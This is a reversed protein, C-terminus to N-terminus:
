AQAPQATLVLVTIDDDQGFAVTCSGPFLRLAICTAFAHSLRGNWYVWHSHDLAPDSWAPNDGPHFQWPGELAIATKGIGTILLPEARRGSPAALCAFLCLRFRTRCCRPFMGAPIARLPLSVSFCMKGENVGCLSKRLIQNIELSHLYRRQFRAAWKLHLAYAIGSASQNTRKYIAKAM